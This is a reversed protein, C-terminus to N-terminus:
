ESNLEPNRGACNIRFPHGPNSKKAGKFVEVKLEQRRYPDFPNMNKIENFINLDDM